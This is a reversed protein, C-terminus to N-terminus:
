IGNVYLVVNGTNTDITLAIKAYRPNADTGMYQTVSHKIYNIDGHSQSFVRVYGGAMIEFAWSEKNAGGDYNSIIAGTRQSRQAEPVYIEAEFTVPGNPTINKSMKYLETSATSAFNKGNGPNYNVNIAHNHNASIDEIFRDHELAGDLAFILNADATDYAAASHDRAITQADRVGKYMAVSKMMGKFPLSLREDNGISLLNTQTTGNITQTSNYMTSTVSSNTATAKKEGNVYLVINDTKSTTDVTVAIKVFKPDADTGM